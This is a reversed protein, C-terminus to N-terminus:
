TISLIIFFTEDIKRKEKNSRNVDRRFGFKATARFLQSELLSWNLKLGDSKYESKVPFMSTVIVPLPRASPALCLVLMGQPSKLLGVLSTPM